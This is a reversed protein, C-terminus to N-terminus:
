PIRHYNPYIFLHFFSFLSLYYSFFSVSAKDRLEAATAIQKEIDEIKRKISKFRKSFETDEKKARNEGEKMSNAANLSTKLDTMEENLDEAEKQLASNRHVLEVLTQELIRM